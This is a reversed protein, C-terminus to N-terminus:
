SNRPNEAAKTLSSMIYVSYHVAAADAAEESMGISILGGRYYEVSKLIVNSISNLENLAAARAKAKEMFLDSSIM